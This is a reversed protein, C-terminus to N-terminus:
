NPSLFRAARGQSSSTLSPFPNRRAREACAISCNDQIRTDNCIRNNMQLFSFFSTKTQKVRSPLFSIFVTEGECIKHISGCCLAYFFHSEPIPPFPSHPIPFPSHPPPPTVRRMPLLSCYVNPRRWEGGFLSNIVLATHVMCPFSVVYLTAARRVGTTPPPYRNLGCLVGYFVSVVGSRGKHLAALPNLVGCATAEERSLYPAGPGYLEEPEPMDEDSTQRPTVSKMFDSPPEPIAQGDGANTSGYALSTVSGLALGVLEDDLEHAEVLSRVMQVQETSLSTNNTNTEYLPVAANEVTYSDMNAVSTGVGRWVERLNIAQDPCKPHNARQTVFRLDLPRELEAEVDAVFERITRQTCPTFRIVRRADTSRFCCQHMVYLIREVELKADFPLEPLFQGIPPTAPTFVMDPAGADSLLAFYPRPCDINYRFEQVSCQFLWTPVPGAVRAAFITDYTLCLICSNISINLDGTKDRGIFHGFSYHYPMHHELRGLTYSVMAPLPALAIGNRPDVPPYGKFPRVGLQDYGMVLELVYVFRIYEYECSFRFALMKEINFSLFDMKRVPSRLTGYVPGSEEPSRRYDKNARLQRAVALDRQRRREICQDRLSDFLDTLGFPDRFFSERSDESLDPVHDFGTTRSLLYDSPAEGSALDRPSGTIEVQYLQEGSPKVLRYEGAATRRLAAIGCADGPRHPSRLDLGRSARRGARGAARGRAAPVHRPPASFSNNGPLDTHITLNGIPPRRPSLGTSPRSAFSLNSVANTSGAGSTSPNESTHPVPLPREATPESCEQYVHTVGREMPATTSSGHHPPQPAPAASPASTGMSAHPDAHSAAASAVGPFGNTTSYGFGSRSHNFGEISATSVDPQFATPPPPLEQRQHLYRRTTDFAIYRPTWGDILGSNQKEVLSFFMPGSHLLASPTAWHGLPGTRHIRDTSATPAQSSSGRPVRASSAATTDAFSLLATCHLATCYSLAASRHPHTKTTTITQKNTQKDKGTRAAFYNVIDLLFPISFHLIRASFGCLPYFAAPYCPPPPPPPCWCWDRIGARCPARPVPISQVLYSTITDCEDLACFHTNTPGNHLRVCGRVEDIRQLQLYRYAAECLPGEDGRGVPRAPKRVGVGKPQDPPITDRTGRGTVLEKFSVSTSFFFFPFSTIDGLRSLSLSLSPSIGNLTVSGLLFSCCVFLCFFHICSPFLVIFFLFSLVLIYLCISTLNSILVKVDKGRGKQYTSPPGAPYMGRESAREKENSTLRLKPDPGRRPSFLWWSPVVVVFFFSFKNSVRCDSIKEPSLRCSSSCYVRIRSSSLTHSDVIFIMIMWGVGRLTLAWPSLPQPASRMVSRHSSRSGRSLQQRRRRYLAPRRSRNTPITKSATWSLTDTAHPRPNTRGPHAPPTAADVAEAPLYSTACGYSHESGSDSDMFSTVTLESILSRPPSPATGSRNAEEGSHLSASTPLLRPLDVDRPSYCLTDTHFLNFSEASRRASPPPVPPISPLDRGRGHRQRGAASDSRFGGPRHSVHHSQAPSSLREASSIGADSLHHSTELMNYVEEEPVGVIGDNSLSSSRRLRRRQRELHETIEDFTGPGFPLPFSGDPGDDYLPIAADNTDISATIRQVERWPASFLEATRAYRERVRTLDVDLHRGESRMSYVFSRPTPEVAEKMDIVRRAEISRFCCDHTIHRIRDIETMACFASAKGGVDTPVFIIDPRDDGATLLRCVPFKEVNEWRAWMPMMGNKKLVMVSDYAMCLYVQEMKILAPRKETEPVPGDTGILYGNVMIYVMETDMRWLSCWATVPLPALALQNRPDYPPFGCYPRITLKDYGLVTNVVYLFRHYEYETRFRFSLEIQPEVTGSDGGRERARRGRPSTITGQLSRFADRSTGRALANQRGFELMSFQESLSRYLELQMYRDHIFEPNQPDCREEGGTLGTGYCLLPGPAPTEGLAMVRAVGRLDIRLAEREIVTVEQKRAMPSVAELKLKHRWRVQGMAPSRVEHALDELPSQVSPLESYETKSDFHVTPSRVAPSVPRSSFHIHARSGGGRPSGIMPSSFSFVRPSEGSTHALRLSTQRSGPSAPSCSMIFPSSPAAKRPTTPPLASSQLPASYYMHRRLTDFAIIRLQWTNFFGSDQKEAYCYYM